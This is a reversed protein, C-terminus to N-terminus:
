NCDFDPDDQYAARISNVVKLFVKKMAAKKGPNKVVARVTTLIVSIAFDVLFSDM